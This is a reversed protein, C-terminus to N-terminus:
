VQESPGKLSPQPVLTSNLGCVETQNRACRFQGWYIECFQGHRIRKERITM